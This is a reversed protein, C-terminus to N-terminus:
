YSGELASGIASQIMQSVETKTPYDSLDINTDGIKEWKNNTYIYEDYYNNEASSSNPVLYIVNSDGTTPLSDVTQISVSHINGILTNVQEQTYTESKKYYNELNDVAKTIFNSTDPIESKLAYDGQPQAGIQSLQVDGELTFGNIKPRNELKNHDTTGGNKLATLPAIDATLNPVNNM